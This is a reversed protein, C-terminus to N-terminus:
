EQSIIELPSGYIAYSMSTTVVRDGSELGHILVVEKRDNWGVEVDKRALKNEQDAILVYEGDLLAASPIRTANEFVKGTIDVNVYSGLLLPMEAGELPNEIEVLVNATRAQPDLEGELRSIRGQKVLSVRDSPTFHISVEAGQKDQTDPISIEPLRAIPVSARVFFSDTGQLIGVPSGGVVQGLDLQEQKVICNFPAYLTTRSLNREARELSANAADVNAKMLDLHPRRSTLEPTAGENGLLEWERQAATQREEELRLNLKAQEVRAKEQRVVLRYDVPDIKAIVDGKQFRKGAQLGDAVFVIQGSVQPVLNIQQSPQVVGSTYIKSQQEGVQIDLIEVKLPEVEPETRQETGGANVLAIMSGIGLLVILLSIIATKM